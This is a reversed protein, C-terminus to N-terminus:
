SWLLHLRYMKEYTKRSGKHLQKHKKQSHREQHIYKNQIQESSFNHIINLVKMITHYVAMQNVSMMKIKERLRQMNVCQVMRLGHIVRKMNNRMTQLSSTEHCYM